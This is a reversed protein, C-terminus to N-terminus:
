RGRGCVVGDLEQVVRGPAIKSRLAEMGEDSLAAAARLLELEEPHKVLRLERLRRHMPILAVGPLEEPVKALAEFMGDTGIRAQSLGRSSLREAMLRPWDPVSWELVSPRSHEAYLTVDEIWLTGRERALRIHNTSLECAVLFPDGERPIVVATPREWPEVDVSFNSAFFAFDPQGFLLADLGEAEMLHGMAERRAEFVARSLFPM